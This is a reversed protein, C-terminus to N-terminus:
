GILCLYFTKSLGWGVPTYMESKSKEKKGWKWYPASPQLELLRRIVVLNSVMSFIASPLFSLEEHCQSAMM